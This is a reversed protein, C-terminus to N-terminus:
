RRSVGASPASSATQRAQSREMRGSHVEALLLIEQAGFRQSVGMSIMARSPSCRKLVDGGLDDAVREMLVALTRPTLRCLGNERRHRRVRAGKECFVSGPRHRQDCILAAEAQPRQSYHCGVATTPRLYIRWWHHREPGGWLLRHERLSSVNRRDFSKGEFVGLLTPVTVRVADSMRVDALEGVSFLVSRRRNERDLQRRHGVHLHDVLDLKLM